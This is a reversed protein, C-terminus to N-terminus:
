PLALYFKNGIIPDYVLSLGSEGKDAMFPIDGSIIAGGYFETQKMISDVGSIFIEADYSIGKNGILKAQLSPSFTCKEDPTKQCEVQVTVFIYEQGEKPDSNFPNGAKVIEDAPRVVGLVTFAMKDAVVSSGVPAPNSRATGAKPVSEAPSNHTADAQQSVGTSTASTGSTLMAEKDLAEVTAAVPDIVVVNDDEFVSSCAKLFIFAVILLFVLVALGIWCGTRSKKVQQVVQVVPAPTQQKEGGETGSEGQPLLDRGCYRCVIAEDQIEEACYPCKKM